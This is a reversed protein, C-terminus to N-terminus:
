TSDGWHSEPLQFSATPDPQPLDSEGFTEEKHSLVQAPRHEPLLWDSAPMVMDDSPVDAAESDASRVAPASSRGRKSTVVSGYQRRKNRRRMM